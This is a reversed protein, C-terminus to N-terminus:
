SEVGNHKEFLWWNARDFGDEMGWFGKRKLELDFFMSQYHKRFDRKWLLDEHGRYHITTEEEAFYEIALIYKRSARHIERLVQPLDNLPIHILVGATFVLDFLTERFPVYQAEAALVNVHSGCRRALDLAHRNPEIGFLRTKTSFLESLAILNHGRNCGVELISGIELGSLMNHFAGFKLRWDVANRDTYEKGFEGQWIELQKNM